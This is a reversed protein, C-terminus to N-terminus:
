VGDAAARVRREALLAILFGFTVLAALLLYTSHLAGVLSNM